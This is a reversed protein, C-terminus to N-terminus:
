VIPKQEVHANLAAIEPHELLYRIVDESSVLVDGVFHNAVASILAYDEETDLTVRLQPHCIAKPAKIWTAKFKEAFEYIYYTVHERHRPEQGHKHMYELASFSIMEVAAIGRPLEGEIRVIDCPNKAMESVVQSALHYDIFPCDATVRIVYDPNYLRACSYYRDLVDDELGRYCHVSNAKCWEAIADDQPLTSTAVIIEDVGKIYRCRSVVYDLEVTKGLSKLVKGPLRSSGMRAQIILLTKM